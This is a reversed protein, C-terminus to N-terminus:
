PWLRVSSLIRVNLETDAAVLPVMNRFAKSPDPGASKMSDPIKHTQATPHIIPREFTPEYSSPILPQQRSKEKLIEEVHIFMQASM